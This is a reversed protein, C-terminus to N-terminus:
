KRIEDLAAVLDSETLGSNVVADGLRPLLVFRIKGSEFKKDMRTIRLLEETDFGEPLSTPLEFKKLLDLIRVADAGPLGAHKVSLWLAAHLGLSIAEGHLMAGYGAAAEVAHGLTHGFNLLARLGLTEYEDAEV